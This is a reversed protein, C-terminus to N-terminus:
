ASVLVRRLAGHCHSATGVLFAYAGERSRAAISEDAAVVDRVDIMGVGHTRHICRFVYPGDVMRGAVREGDAYQALATPMSWDRTDRTHPCRAPEICNVPCMWDAFSVYHTGDGGAREWPVAPAAALPEIAIRRSPWREAARLMLWDAM